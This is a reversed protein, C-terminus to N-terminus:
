GKLGALALNLELVNVTPEGLYGLDRAAIRSEVLRRVEAVAVHRAAAVRNVQLRAYAPSIDPDLGSASRTLADAPIRDASVADFDAIARKQRAIASVLDPNEPGMNSGGSVAADYGTGAASPRPQFWEPLPAGTSDTFSQGILSSGVVHAGQRLLSGNAQGPVAIQGIATVALPYALGLSVTLVLMARLAVGIHRTNTRPSAM